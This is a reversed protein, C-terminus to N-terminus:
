LSSDLKREFTNCLLATMATVMALDFGILKSMLEVDGFIERCELKLNKFIDHNTFEVLWETFRGKLGAKTMGEFVQKREDYTVTSKHFIFQIGKEPQSKLVSHKYVDGVLLTVNHGREVLEKAINKMVSYHSGEGLVPHILINSGCVLPMVISCVVFITIGSAMEFRRSPRVM